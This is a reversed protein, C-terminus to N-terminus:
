HSVRTENPGESNATSAVKWKSRLTGEEYKEGKNWARLSSFLIHVKDIHAKTRWNSYYSDSALFSFSSFLDNQLQLRMRQLNERSCAVDRM